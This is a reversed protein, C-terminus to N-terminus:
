ENVPCKHAVENGDDTKYYFMLGGSKWKAELINYANMARTALKIDDECCSATKYLSLAFTVRETPTFPNYPLYHAESIINGLWYAADYSDKKVAKYLWVFSEADEIEDLFWGYRLHFEETDGYETESVKIYMERAKNINQEVGLGKHYCDALNCWVKMDDALNHGLYNNYYEYAKPDDEDYAIDGLVKFVGAFAPDVSIEQYLRKANSINADCGIGFHYCEALFVKAEACSPNEVVIEKALNYVGKAANSEGSFAADYISRLHKLKKDLKMKDFFM